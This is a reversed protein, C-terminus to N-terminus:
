AFADDDEFAELGESFDDEARSFSGIPEGKELVQVSNIWASTGRNGAQDYATINMSVRGYDGSVIERPDIVENLAADVVQPRSNSKVNIFWCGKYHAADKLDGDKLPNGLNSPPKNPWKRAIAADIASKIKAVTAKDSKPILALVCYKGPDIEADEPRPQLLWPYALRVKGTVVKNPPHNTSM